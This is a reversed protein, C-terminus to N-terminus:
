ASELLVQLPINQSEGDPLTRRISIPLVGEKLELLAIDMASMSQDRIDILVPAGMSIQLARAGVVRAKEFRTLKRPGIMHKFARMSSHSSSVQINRAKRIVWPGAERAIHYNAWQSATVSGFQGGHTPPILRLGQPIAYLTQEALSRSQLPAYRLPAISFVRDIDPEDVLLNWPTVEIHRIM